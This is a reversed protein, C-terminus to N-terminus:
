KEVCNFNFIFERVQELEQQSINEGVLKLASLRLNLIMAQKLNELDLEKPSFNIKNNKLDEVSYIPLINHLASFRQINEKYNTAILVVPIGMAACPAACHLARTIVLKAENKYRNLLDKAKELYFEWSYHENDMEVWQQNIYIADKTISEPMFKALKEKIGVLFVKNQTPSSERKPLTLTFCRSLYAEIGMKRAFDLTYLDRCGLASNKFYDPRMVLLYRLITQAFETLHTGIFLPLLNKSPIFYPSYAFWGQMVVIRPDENYFNLFDMDYFKVSSDKFAKSTALYTAYAQNENGLNMRNFKVLHNKYSPIIFNLKSELQTNNPSIPPPPPLHQAM